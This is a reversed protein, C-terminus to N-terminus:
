VAESLGCCPLRKVLLEEYYNQVEKDLEESEPYAYALDPKILSSEVKLLRSFYIEGCRAFIEARRFFYQLNYKSKGNLTGKIREDLNEMHRLFAEKYLVTIRNFVVELSLDGLQDDIMHFYEHVFSSPCRIDVCLTHLSPYYLGSAKHKGLKRFRLTVDKFAKGSFYARNLVEFEKEITKVSALDVEEDFEVYKFYDMFGTSEMAGHVAKPINKKTIYATAISRGIESRHRNEYRIDLYVELVRCLIDLADSLLYTYENLCFFERGNNTYTRFLNKLPLPTKQRISEALPNPAGTGIREDEKDLYDKFINQVLPLGVSAQIQHIGTFLFVRSLFATLDIIHAEVRAKQSCAGRLFYYGDRRKRKVGIGGYIDEGGMCDLRICYCSPLRFTICAIEAADGSFRDAYSVQLEGQYPKLIDQIYSLGPDTESMEPNDDKQFSMFTEKLYKGIVKLVYDPQKYREVPMCPYNLNLLPVGNMVPYVKQYSHEKKLSLIREGGVFDTISSGAQYEEPISKPLTFGFAEFVSDPVETRKKQKM